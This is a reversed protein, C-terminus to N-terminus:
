YIGWIELIGPLFVLIFSIEEKGIRQGLGVKRKNGLTYMCQRGCLDGLGCVKADFKSGRDKDRWM